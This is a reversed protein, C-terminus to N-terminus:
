DVVSFSLNGIKELQMDNHIKANNTYSILKKPDVNEIKEINGM